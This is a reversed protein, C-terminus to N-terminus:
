LRNHLRLLFHVQLSHSNFKSNHPHYLTSEHLRHGDRKITPFIYTMSCQQIFLYTIIYFHQLFAPTKKEFTPIHLQHISLHHILLPPQTKASKKKRWSNNNKLLFFAKTFNFACLLSGSYSFCLLLLFGWKVIDEINKEEAWFLCASLSTYWRSLLKKLHLKPFIAADDPCVVNVIWKSWM